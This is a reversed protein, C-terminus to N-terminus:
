GRELLAKLRELTVAMGSEMEKDFDAVGGLVKEQLTVSIKTMGHPAERRHTVTTGTATPALEFSWTSGNDKVRFAFDRHPEFRVVKARTPWLLLGRRNINVTRTGLGVPATGVVHTRLVQDSLGGLARPDTIVAWVAEPDASIETTAELLPANQTTTM